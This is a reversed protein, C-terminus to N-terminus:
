FTKRVAIIVFHYGNGVVEEQTAREVNSAELHSAESRRRFSVGDSALHVPGSSQM